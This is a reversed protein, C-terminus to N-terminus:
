QDLYVPWQGTGQAHWAHRQRLAKANAPQSQRSNVTSGEDGGPGQKRIMREADRVEM